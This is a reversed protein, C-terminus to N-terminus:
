RTKIEKRDILTAPCSYGPLYCQGIPDIQEEENSGGEKDRDDDSGM